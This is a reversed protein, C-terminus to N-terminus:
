VGQAAASMRRRPARHPFCEGPRRPRAQIEARYMTATKSNYKEPIKGDQSRGLIIRPASCIWADPRRCMPCCRCGLDTSSQYQTPYPLSCALMAPPSPEQSGPIHPRYSVHSVLQQKHKTFFERARGNGGVLM